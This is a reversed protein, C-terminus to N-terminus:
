HIKPDAPDRRPSVAVRLAELDTDDLSGAFRLLAGTRDSVGVLTSLMDAAAQQSEVSTATYVFESGPRDRSVAGDRRLRDLVTMITTIALERDSEQRAVAVQVERATVPRDSDWLARLVAKKLSGSERRIPSM